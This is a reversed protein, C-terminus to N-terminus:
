MRNAQRRASCRNATPTFPEGEIFHAIAADYAAMVAEGTPIGALQAAVQARAVAGVTRGPPGSPRVLTGYVTTSDLLWAVETSAGNGLPDIM